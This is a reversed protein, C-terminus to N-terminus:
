SLVIEEHYKSIMLFSGEKLDVLHVLVRSNIIDMEKVFESPIHLIFSHTDTNEYTRELSINSIRDVKGM